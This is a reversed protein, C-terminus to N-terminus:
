VSQNRNSSNNLKEMCTLDLIGVRWGVIATAACYLDSLQEMSMKVMYMTPRPSMLITMKHWLANDSNASFMSPVTSAKRKPDHWIPHLGLPSGVLPIILKSKIVFPNDRFLHIILTDRHPQSWRPLGPMTMFNNTVNNTPFSAQLAQASSMLPQTARTSDVFLTSYNPLPVYAATIVRGGFYRGHLSNVSAVAAAITPCKVYVNGQPSSKDVYLHIVGGHKNCEEIVDDRVEQDWTPGKEATTDFMNSLM